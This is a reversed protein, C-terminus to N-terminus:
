KSEGVVKKSFGMLYGTKLDVHTDLYHKDVVCEVYPNGKTDMYVVKEGVDICGYDEEAIIIDSAKLENFKIM